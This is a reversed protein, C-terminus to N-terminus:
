IQGYHLYALISDAYYHSEDIKTVLLEEIHFSCKWMSGPFFYYYRLFLHRMLWTRSRADLWIRSVWVWEGAREKLSLIKIKYLFNFSKFFLLFSFIRFSDSKVRIIPISICVSRHQLWLYRPGTRVYNDM